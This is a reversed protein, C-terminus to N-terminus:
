PYRISVAYTISPLTSLNVSHLLANLKFYRMSTKSYLYTQHWFQTQLIAKCSLTEAAPQYQDPSSNKLMEKSVDRHLGDPLNKWRPASSRRKGTKQNFRTYKLQTSTWNTTSLKPTVRTSLPQSSFPPQTFQGAIPFPYSTWTPSWQQPETTSSYFPKPWSSFSPSTAPRAFFPSPHTTPGLKGHLPSSPSTYTYFKNGPIRPQVAKGRCKEM